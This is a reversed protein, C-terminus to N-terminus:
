QSGDVPFTHEETGGSHERFVVSGKVVRSEDDTISGTQLETLVQDDGTLKFFM